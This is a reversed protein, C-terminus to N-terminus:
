KIRKLEITPIEFRQSDRECGFAEHLLVERGLFFGLLLAGNPTMYKLACGCKDCFVTPRLRLAVAEESTALDRQMELSM